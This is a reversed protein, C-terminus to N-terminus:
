RPVAPSLCPKKSQGMLQSGGPLFEFGAEDHRRWRCCAGRTAGDSLRLTVLEPIEAHPPLYIRAGTASLDLIVGRISTFGFEVAAIRVVASRPAVRRELTM